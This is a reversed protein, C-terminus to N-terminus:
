KAVMWDNTAWTPFWLTLGKFVVWSDACLTIDTTKLVIVMWAEGLEAWQSSQGMGADWWPTDTLLQVVIATWQPLQRVACSDTYWTDSQITGQGEKMPSPFTDMNPIDASLSTTLYTISRLVAHM